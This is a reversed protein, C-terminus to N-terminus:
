ETIKIWRHWASSNLLLLFRRFQQISNPRENHDAFWNGLALSNFARFTIFSSESKVKLFTSLIQRAQQMRAVSVLTFCISFKSICANLTAVLKFRFRWQLLRNTPDSDDSPEILLVVPSLGVNSILHQSLKQWAAAM